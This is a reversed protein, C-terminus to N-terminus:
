MRANLTTPSSLAPRADTTGAHSFEFVAAISSTIIAACAWGASVSGLTISPTVRMQGIPVQQRLITTVGANIHGVYLWSISNWYRKCASLDEDYSPLVFPPAVGTSDPDAYMGVDFLEFVDSSTEIGNSTSSTGIYPGAQWADATSQYTSGTALTINLHMGAVATTPWTGSTDGPITFSQLTDVDAAVTFERIYSRDFAPNRIALAYTGAPGKFGFRVVIDKASATGWLLDAIQTGEISQQLIAYQGAAISADGTTVTTRLRHTSGGPSATAVQGTTLTGDQTHNINWQDAGYYGSTTGTTTGNEQSIRMGPNTIYNKLNRINLGNHTIGTSIIATNITSNGYTIGTATIATNITSNGYTIGTATIATNITSNGVSLDGLGSITNVILESM